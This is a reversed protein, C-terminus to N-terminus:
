MMLNDSWKYNRSKNQEAEGRLVDKHHRYMELPFLFQKSVKTLNVFDTFLEIYGYIKDLIEYPISVKNYEQLMNCTTQHLKEGELFAKFFNEKM